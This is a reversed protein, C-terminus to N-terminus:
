TKKQRRAEHTHLAGMVELMTVHEDKPSKMVQAFVLDKFIVPVVWPASLEGRIFIMPGRFLMDEGRRLSSALFLQMPPMGQLLLMHVAHTLVLKPTQFRRWNVTVNKVQTRQVIEHQLVDMYGGASGFGEVLLSVRDTHAHVGEAEGVGAAGADVGGADQAEQM